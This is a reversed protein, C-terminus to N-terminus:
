DCLQRRPQQHQEVWCCCGGLLLLVRLAPGQSQETPRQGAWCAGLGGLLGWAALWDIRESSETVPVRQVRHIGSEFKLQGYVAGHGGITASALKCGGLENEALEVV